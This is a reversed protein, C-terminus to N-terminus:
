RVHEPPLQLAAVEHELPWVQVTSAIDVDTGQAAGDVLLVEEDAPAGAAAVTVSLIILIGVSTDM